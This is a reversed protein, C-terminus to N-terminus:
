IAVITRVSKDAASRALSERLSRVNHFTKEVQRRKQTTLSLLSRARPRFCFISFKVVKEIVSLYFFKNRNM